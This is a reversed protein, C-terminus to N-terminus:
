IYKTKYTSMDGTKVSHSAIGITLFAKKYGANNFKNNFKYYEKECNEIKGIGTNNIKKKMPKM